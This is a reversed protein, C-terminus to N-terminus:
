NPPARDLALRQDRHHQHRPDSTRASTSGACSTSPASSATAPQTSSSTSSTCRRRRARAGPAPAPRGGRDHDRRGAPPLLLQQVLLGAVPAQRGGAAAAAVRRRSQLHVALIGSAARRRRRPLRIQRTPRSGPRRQGRPDAARARVFRHRNQDPGPSHEGPRRRPTAHGLWRSQHRTYRFSSTDTAPRWAPHVTPFAGCVMAPEGTVSSESSAIM